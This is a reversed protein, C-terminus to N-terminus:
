CSGYALRRSLKSQVDSSLERMESRAVPHQDKAGIGPERRYTNPQAQYAKPPEHQLQFFVPGPSFWRSNCQAAPTRNWALWGCTLQFSREPVSTPYVRRRPSMVNPPLTQVSRQHKM